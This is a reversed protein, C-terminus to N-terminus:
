RRGSAVPQEPAPPPPLQRSLAPVLAADIRALTTRVATVRIAVPILPPLWGALGRFTQHLGDALGICRASLAAAHSLSEATMTEAQMSARALAAVLREVERVSSEMGEAARQAVRDREAEPWQAMDDPIATRLRLVDLCHELEGYMPALAVPPTHTLAPGLPASAVAPQTTADVPTTPTELAPRRGPAWWLYGVIGVLLVLVVLSLARDWGDVTAQQVAAVLEPGAPPGTEAALGLALFPSEEILPFAEGFVSEQDAVGSRYAANFASGAIAIGIAAGLERLVDNLASAVGQKAQPLSEVIAETAPPGALGYGAGMLIMVVFFRGLGTEVDITTGFAFAGAMIALGLAGVVRRGYRKTFPTAIAAMPFLGIGFPMMALGTDLPGLGRVLSLYFVLVFFVGFMATFQIFVSLSGARLGRERFLKVELLPGPTTSEWWVFALLAGAGIVLGGLSLPATWGEVPGEIIGLVLGGFAVVSLVAGIPDLNAHAPDRSDPVAVFCFALVAVSAIAMALFVSGWWFNEILAGSGLVGLMGGISVAATWMAVGQSRREPPMTATITSLTAPFVLAAGVGSVGRAVILQTPTDLALTALNSVALISLGALLITRRGFKDGIAGVPLLLSALVIAYVDVMWHAETQSAELEVSLEPLAVNLMSVNALVLVAAAITAALIM